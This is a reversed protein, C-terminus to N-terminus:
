PKVRYGVGRITEIHSAWDGLKKRLGVLQVDVTRETVSKEEDQMADIIQSRTYVRGPRSALLAILRFEGRTLTLLEGNLSASGARTDIRLGDLDRGAALPDNRRLVAHIRALLVERSFPKTVYDDAGLELGRVVDEDESKATLMIIRVDALTTDERVRRCLTLGDIGPLMLDLLVLQPPERRIAELGEDGRAASRVHTFGESRLLMQLITRITSDDEVILINVLNNM